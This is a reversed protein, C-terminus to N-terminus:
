AEPIISTTINKEQRSFHKNKQGNKFQIQNKQQQTTHASQFNLGQQDYQKCINEGM